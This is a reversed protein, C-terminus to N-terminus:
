FNLLSKPLTLSFSNKGKGSGIIKGTAELTIDNRSPSFFIDFDSLESIVLISNESSFSRIIFFIALALVSGSGIGDAMLSNFSLGSIFLKILMYLAKEPSFISPTMLLNSPFFSDSNLLSRQSTTIFSISGILILNLSNFFSLVYKFFISWSPISLAM